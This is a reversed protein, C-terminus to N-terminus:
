VKPLHAGTALRHSSATQSLALAGQQCGVLVFCSQLHSTNSGTPMRTAALTAAMAQLRRRRWVYVLALELAYVQLDRTSKFAPLTCKHLSHLHLM